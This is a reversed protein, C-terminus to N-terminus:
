AHRRRINRLRNRKLMLEILDAGDMYPEPHDFYSLHNALRIWFGVRGKSNARILRRIYRKRSVMSGGYLRIEAEIPREYGSGLM